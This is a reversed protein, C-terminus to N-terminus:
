RSITIHLFRHAWLYGASASGHRFSTKSSISVPDQMVQCMSAETTKIGSASRYSTYQRDGSRRSSTLPLRFRNSLKTSDPPFHASRGGTNFDCLTDRHDASLFIESSYQCVPNSTASVTYKVGGSISGYRM